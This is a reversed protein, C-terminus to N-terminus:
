KKRGGFRRDRNQYDEIIREFELPKFDPWLVDTFSFESYASQWLMFNSLRKEGSTRIILDPDPINKNGTYLYRSVIDETLEECLIGKKIDEYINKMARVIEARSGYNLAINFQLGTNNKTTELSKELKEVALAPIASYDGMVHVKVNNEHLENLENDIYKVMLKFIGSVEEASRKWNETSFAYVTLYKIGITSAKKVIEKMAQMGANHGAIKPLFRKEAWRGNGDMIIAVHVPIKTKDLM